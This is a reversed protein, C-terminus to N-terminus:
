TLAAAQFDYDESATIRARVYEVAHSRHRGTRNALRVITGSEEIADLVLRADLYFHDRAILLRSEDVASRSMHQPKFAPWMQQDIDAAAADFQHQDFVAAPYPHLTGFQARGPQNLM